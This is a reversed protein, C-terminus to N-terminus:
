DVGGTAGRLGGPNLRGYSGGLSRMTKIAENLEPFLQKPNSFSAGQTYAAWAPDPTQSSFWTPWPQYVFVKGSKTRWFSYGDPPYYSIYDLNPAYSMTVVQDIVEGAPITYRNSVAAFGSPVAPGATLIYSTSMATIPQNDIYNPTSTSTDFQPWGYYYVAGDDGYLFSGTGALYSNSGTITIGSWGPAVSMNYGKLKGAENVYVIKPNDSWLNGDWFIVDKAKEGLTQPTALLQLAAQPYTTPTFYVSTYRV